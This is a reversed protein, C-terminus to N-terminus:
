SMREDPNAWSMFRITGGPCVYGNNPYMGIYPTSWFSFVDAPLVRLQHLTSDKAGCSNEYVYWVQYIGTDGFSVSTDRANLLRGDSMRWHSHYDEDWYAGGSLTFPSNVCNAVISNMGVRRYPSVYSYPMALTTDSVLVEFEATDSINGRFAILRPTYRGKAAYSYSINEKVTERRVGDGFDWIVFDAYEAYSYFEVPKGPCVINKSISGNAEPTLSDPNVVLMEFHHTSSDGCGNYSTLYISYVGPMSYSHRPSRKNSTHGDGMQWFSSIDYQSYNEFRVEEGTFLHNTSPYFYTSPPYQVYVVKKIELNSGQQILTVVYNGPSHYTQTQAQSGTTSGNGNGFDWSYQTGGTSNNTFTFSVGVCHDPNGSISFDVSQAQASAIFLLLLWASIAKRQITNSHKM